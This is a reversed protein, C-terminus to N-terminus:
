IFHTFLVNFLFCFKVKLIKGRLNPATKYMWLLLMQEPFFFFCVKFLGFHRAKILAEGTFILTVISDIVLIPFTFFPCIQLTRPTHM